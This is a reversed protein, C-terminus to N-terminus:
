KKSKIENVIDEITKMDANEVVHKSTKILFENINNNIDMAQQLKLRENKNKVTSLDISHMETSLYVIKCDNLMVSNDNALYLDVSISFVCSEYEMVRSICEREIKKLFVDGCQLAVQKRSILEFDVLEDVDLYHMKKANALQKATEKRLYDNLCIIAINKKM